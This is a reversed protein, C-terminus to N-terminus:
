EYIHPVFRSRNDTVLTDSERVGIGSPLGGVVWSGIVPYRDDVNIDVLQQYVAVTSDYEGATNVVDIGNKVIRINAGERSLNPKQVFSNMRHHEENRAELLYPSKPFLRYLIPLIRKRSLIAKWAPEIMRIGSRNIHDFFSDEVLWEWPYLKFLTTIEERSQDVFRRGDWGIESMPLITTAIGAQEATDALYTITSGDEESDLSALWLKSIKQARWAKILNDHVDTWQRSSPFHEEKWNWQILAAEILATPTDANYELLKPPRDGTYALDFRGYLSFHSEKWSKEILGALEPEIELEEYLGDDIIHQVAELCMENLVETARYIEDIQAESFRYYACEEWYEPEWLLGEAARSKRPWLGIQREM